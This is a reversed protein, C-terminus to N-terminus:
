FLDVTVIVLPLFVRVNLSHHFIQRESEVERLSHCSVIRFM